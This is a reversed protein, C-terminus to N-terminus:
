NDTSSLTTYLITVGMLRADIAMTDGADSVDRFVQFVVWDSSEPTNAITFSSSEGTIFLDDTTGGTDTTVVATGFATDLADDDDIAAGQIAWAVGFNVTTAAHSWLFVATVDGADWGKPMQVTLQVFEDAATDFDFSEVMIKNTSTEFSGAAAGDTNRNIMAPAPIYITHKGIGSMNAWQTPSSSPTNGVNSSVRSLYSIGALVVYDNAGYTTTANYVRNFQIEEWQVFSTDPQNNQNNNIKSIYFKNSFTVIDNAVYTTASNYASFAGTSVDSGVPDREWIVVDDADSFRVRATGNFFCSPTRGAGDLILPNPNATTLGADVFTDKQTSTGSEFFELKGGPILENSDNAFQPVPNDFRPM